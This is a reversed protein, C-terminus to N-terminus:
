ATSIPKIEPRIQSAGFYILIIALYFFGQKPIDTGMLNIYFAILFFLSVRNKRSFFLEFSSLVFLLFGFIGKEALSMALHADGVRYYHLKDPIKNHLNTYGAFIKNKAKPSSLSGIGNGYPKKYFKNLSYTVFAERQTIANDKSFPNFTGVFKQFTDNNMSYILGSVFLVSTMAVLTITAKTLKIKKPGYIAFLMFFLIVLPGRSFTFFAVIILLFLDFYNNKKKLYYLLLLYICALQGMIRFDFVFGTNRPIIRSVYLSIKPTAEKFIIGDRFLAYMQDPFNPSIYIVLCAVFTYRFFVILYEYDINKDAKVLVLLLFLLLPLIEKPFVSIAYELTFLSFIVLFTAFLATWKLTYVREKSIARSNLYYHSVIILVPLYNCLINLINFSMANGSIFPGMILRSSLMLILVATIDKRVLIRYYSILLVPIILTFSLSPMKFVILILAFILALYVDIKTKFLSIKM